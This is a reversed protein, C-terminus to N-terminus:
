GSSLIRGQPAMLMPVHSLQGEMSHGSLNGAAYFHRPLNGSSYAAAPNIESHLTHNHRSRVNRQSDEVATLLNDSRYSHNNSAPDLPWHQPGTMPNPQLLSSSVHLNSSSGASYYGSTNGGSFAPAMAPSKRKFTARGFETQPGVMSGGHQNFGPPPVCLVQDPPFRSSGATSSPHLYQERLPGPNPAIYNSFSSSPYDNPRLVAANNAAGDMPIM